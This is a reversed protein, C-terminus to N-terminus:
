LSKDKNFNAASFERRDVLKTPRNNRVVVFGEPKAKKGNISHKFEANSSLTNVLQDKAQQLHHHLQLMNHFHHKHDLVHQLARQMEVTKAQKSKETKVSAINKQHSNTYHKIFDDVNATTGTRITHNIYTKLPIRHAGVADHGETGIQRAVRQAGKMHKIFQQQTERPYDIQSLEHETSILHVDPHHSFHNLDPAYQAAMSPLDEGKYATHVAVGIKAARAAKGHHSSKKASYTITNPTFSVSHGHEQVDGETHMIDGQYVGRPPTVKPLHTLAAKLKQVLGPAHGHNREIDEETHNLKPNKNFVSKTSVFFKGTEPHRGFIVSPSGDYKMTIKTDNHRGRLKRHVDNLNQMAHQVGAAGANIPHDEAHELHKLQKEDDQTMEALFNTFRKM